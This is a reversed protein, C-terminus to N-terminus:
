RGIRPEAIKVITLLPERPLFGIMLHHPALGIDVAVFQRAFLTGIPGAEEVLM